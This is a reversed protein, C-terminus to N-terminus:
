TYEVLFLTNCVYLYKINYVCLEINLDGEQRVSRAGRPDIDNVEDLRLVDIYEVGVTLGGM